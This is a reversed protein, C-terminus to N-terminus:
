VMNRTIRLRNSRDAFCTVEAGQPDVVVRKVVKAYYVGRRVNPAVSWRGAKTVSRGVVRDKGPRRKFVNVRRDDTCSSEGSRVRGKFLDSSADFRITVVSAASREGLVADDSEEDDGELPAVVDVSASSSATGGEDDIVTLSVTYTGQAAYTHSAVRGTATQGDGFRWQYQAITGDPDSSPGGDFQCSLDACTFAFSATPAVNSTEGGGGSGGGGGGTSQPASVTVTQTAAASAGQDDTVTLTVSYTGGAAYTHAAQSGHGSTGDGFDWKYVAITGDPDSGDGVFQCTLGSCSFTTISASPPQNPPEPEDVRVDDKISATGGRDDTVTLKVSYTGGKAYTHSVQMGSGSNGDDFDWEFSRIPDGDPDSSGGGDLECTLGSCTATFSPQPPENPPPQTEDCVTIEQSSVGKDDREDLVTLTVTYNSCVVVPSGATGSNSADTGSREYTHSVKRGSGTTTDGFDWEYSFITGGQDSTSASADFDCSLGSCDAEFAASPRKMTTASASAAESDGASNFATVRYFYTTEESLESDTFTTTDERLHDPATLETWPGDQSTARSVKYGSENTANDIWTLDIKSASAATASLNTPPSPSDPEDDDSITAEARSDGLIANTPASIDVMFNENPEDVTDGIVEIAINTSDTGEEFTVTGSETVYDTGALYRADSGDEIVVPGGTASGDATEYRVTISSPAPRSLRVAFHAESSGEDGETVALADDISIEPALLEFTATVRRAENMWLTCEGTGTCAGSWGAFTSGESADARLTVQTSPSYDHACDTGCDVGSPASTVTGQGEGARSVELLNGIRICESFESTNGDGSTATATLFRDPQVQVELDHDVVAVGSGDTMVSFDGLFAEGEGYGSGDCSTNSFFEIRYLTNADNSKLSGELHLVPASTTGAVAAMTLEPFNQLGNPGSDSDGPDNLTPGKNGHLDIGMGYSSSIENRSITVSQPGTENGVVSVGTSQNQLIDNGEIRSGSTSGGQVYVGSAGNYLILNGGGELNGIQSGTGGLVGIGHGGNYFIANDAIENEDAGLLLLVGTSYNDGIKNDEVTTEDSNLIEVGYYNALSQPFAVQGDKNLGILNDTVENGDNSDGRVHIGSADNGSIVNGPGVVNGPAQLWVGVDGNPVPLMGSSDTGIRNGLVQNGVAGSGKIELGSDINGSIVNGDADTIGGIVNNRSDIFVGRFNPAATSGDPEVGIFNSKIITGAGEVYIGYHIFNTISLNAITTGISNSGVELGHCIFCDDFNLLEGDIQIQPGGTAGNSGDITTAGTVIPLPELLQIVHPGTGPIAFGISQAGGLANAEQIAGRLTCGQEVVGCSGDGPNPDPLDSTSNVTLTATTSPVVPHVGLNAAPGTAGDDDRPILSVTTSRTSSFRCTFGNEILGDDIREGHGCSIATASTIDDGSDSLEYTYDADSGIEPATPGSLNASPAENAITVEQTATTADVGDSVTASLTANSPGDHFTVTPSDSNGGAIIEAPGSVVSWSYTLADGEGDSAQAIFTASTGEEAESPGSIQVAPSTNSLEWSLRVNGQYVRDGFSSRWGDVAIQYTTGGVVPVHLVEAYGDDTGATPTLTVLSDGEYVALVVFYHRRTSDWVYSRRADLALLGDRPATWRYWISAGGEEGAHAPEGPEKTAGFSKGDVSGKPGELTEAGSFDDNPPAPAWSLSFRGQLASGGWEYGDVAIQYVAGESATFRILSFGVGARKTEESVHTLAEVAAGTYVGLLTDIFEVSGAHFVFDGSFPAEWRYWISAGGNDGEHAPEGPEKSAYFNSALVEGETGAISTAQEFNDNPPPRDWNLVLSGMDPSGLAEWWYSDIAIHYTQDKVATFTTLNYFDATGNSAVETLAAVNSGQYIALVTDVGSNATHFFVEGSFPAIWEYWVSAGGPNDAHNPEGPEKTAGVNSGDITGSAGTIDLADAFHDASAPSWHLIVNGTSIGANSAGDVAIRYAMGAIADFSAVSTEGAGSNDDSTIETLGDVSEGTYIGLLTDWSEFDDNWSGDTNFNFRGDQPAVWRFWISAGGPNGAHAPEGPEKTADVNRGGVAGSSGSILQANVFQDNSPTQALAPRAAVLLDLFLLEVVLIGLVIGRTRRRWVMPRISPGLM